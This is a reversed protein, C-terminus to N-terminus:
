SRARVPDGAAVGSGRSKMASAGRYGSIVSALLGLLREAADVTSIPMTRRNLRSPATLSHVIANSLADREAPAVLRDVLPDAIEPIGGVRSAVFPTGCGISELLVNPIGESRSPLVTLNAARYWDPLDAHPVYGVLTVRTAIGLEACRRQLDGAISGHGVLYLHFDVRDAAAACADVLVDLGKVPTMHGVWLLTRRGPEIGLRQRAAHRDGPKFRQADIGRYIVHIKNAPLGLTRVARKLDQSVAVIADADELVRRIARGRSRQQGLVLVDTGGVMVVAPVGLRRAVQVASQGDPHSWYGVVVDPVFERLVDDVTRRISWWLFAGYRARLVKPPYYYTPHRVEIDDVLRAADWALGERRARVAIPWAVPAIVKVQHHGALARVMERNFAGLNPQLPSPFVSTVLLLKM